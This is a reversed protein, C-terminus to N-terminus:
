KEGNEKIKAKEEKVDALLTEALERNIMGASLWKNIMKEM